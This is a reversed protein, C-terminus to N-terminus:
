SKMIGKPVEIYIDIRDLMPGSIRKQYKTVVCTRLYLAKLGILKDLRDPENRNPRLNILGFRTVALIEM